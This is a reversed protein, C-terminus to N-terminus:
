RDHWLWTGDRYELYYLAPNTMARWDEFGFAPEISNLFLSLANGHSCVVISADHHQAAIDGLSAVVRRQCENASEGGDLKYDRDAWSRQLHDLWGDLIGDALHRERLDEVVQIPLHRQRALPEVTAGARQYPSAYIVDIPRGDLDHALVEAQRLGADSLPWDSEPISDSPASQAHRILLIRTM